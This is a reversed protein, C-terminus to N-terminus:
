TLKKKLFLFNQNKEKLYQLLKNKILKREEQLSSLDNNLYDYTSSITEIDTENFKYM